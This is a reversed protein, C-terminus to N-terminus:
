LDVRKKLVLKVELPGKRLPCWEPPPADLNRIENDDKHHVDPHTCVEGIGSIGDYHASMPCDYCVEVEYRTVKM